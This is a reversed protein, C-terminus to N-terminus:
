FFATPAKTCLVGHTLPFNIKSVYFQKVAPRRCSIVAIEEVKMVQVSHVCARDRARMVCYRITLEVALIVAFDFNKLKLPSKTKEMKKLQSVFYWFHSKAIVLCPAFLARVISLRLQFADDLLKASSEPHWLGWPAFYRM